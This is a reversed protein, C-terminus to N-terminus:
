KIGVRRRAEEPSIGRDRLANYAARKGEETQGYYSYGPLVRLPNWAGTPAPPLKEEMESQDKKSQDGFISKFTAAQLDTDPTIPMMSLQDVVSDMPRGRVRFLEKILQWGQQQKDIPVRKMTEAMMKIIDIDSAQELMRMRDEEAKIERQQIDLQSQKYEKEWKEKEQGAFRESMGVMAGGIGKLAQAVRSEEERPAEGIFSIGPM